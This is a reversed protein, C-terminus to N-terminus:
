RLGMQLNRIQRRLDRVRVYWCAFRWMDWDDIDEIDRGEQIFRIVAVRAKVPVRDKLMNFMIIDIRLEEQLKHLKYLIKNFEPKIREFDVTGFAGLDLNGNEDVIAQYPKTDRHVTLNSILCWEQIEVQQVLEEPDALEEIDLDPVTGYTNDQELKLVTSEVVVIDDGSFWLEKNM